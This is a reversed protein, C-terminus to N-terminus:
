KEVAATSPHARKAPARERLDKKLIKGAPNRPLAELLHFERPCKYDALNARCHAGLAKVDIAKSEEAAVFAVPTEGKSTDARGIVACEKVGPFRHIVEEIERPYVNMGHVLLMDKLRDVIYLYGDPDLKGLDGTRLWGNRLTKATEEDQNLYGRMVNPGRVCVEGVEGAPLERDEESRISVEVDRVPVGCSGPKQVGRLPNFTVVPAAESLGYGELLKIKFKKNFRELTEAPLPAAGSIALRVPLLWHVYWPIQANALAQYVQPIAPLITVRKRIMEKIVNSFPKLSTVLVIGFGTLLPTLMGVTLMFSHFMPLIILIRDSRSKIGLADECSEVNSILNGHTLCAGKPKGTTGSTYIIVALEGADNRVDPSFVREQDPIEDILFKRAKSELSRTAEQFESDTILLQAGSDKLIFDIEAPKLFHNIPVAAAGCAWIAFLNFLYAPSNKLLIAAKEGPKLGATRLRAAQLDVVRRVDSYRWTNSEFLLAKRGPHEAVQELFRLYLNQSPPLM